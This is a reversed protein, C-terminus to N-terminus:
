LQDLSMHIIECAESIQEETIILPPAIRFANDKFLFWDTVLGNKMAISIFRQIMEFNELEVGLFLGKGWINKILPHSLNERFLNGKHEALAPLKEDLTIKLAALGAACSVPHGGFTTIHGLPPDYSLTGMISRPAIFAGLPMGGGLSKALALIDPVIGYHEFAFMKGTRGMGCQIEDLILLAGTEDCKQRLLKLYHEDPIVIGGEGQITELLVCATEETILSLDAPNNFRAFSIGPLLPRFARSQQQNGLVSLAGHTSGHYANQFAVIKYRGTFRKALKLAGEIAESGSNVFYVSDLPAPLCRTLENALGTQPYQIFEGYVMLHMYKESQEKVAKVVAPHSHGLNSVGVGSILDIYKQDDPGYMYIGRAHTIELEMPSVSTQALHHMFLQRHNLM